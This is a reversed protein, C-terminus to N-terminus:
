KTKTKADKPQVYGEPMGDDNWRGANDPRCARVAMCAVLVTSTIPALYWYYMDYGLFVKGILRNLFSCGVCVAAAGLAMQDLPGFSASASASAGVAADAYAYATAQTVILKAMGMLFIFWPVLQVSIYWSMVTAVVPRPIPRNVVPLKKGMRGRVSKLQGKWCEWFDNYWYMSAQKFACQCRFKIKKEVALAALAHSEAVLHGIERHGGLEDYTERTFLNCQGFAYVKGTNVKAPILGQAICTGPWNFMYEAFCSFTTKPLFSVWGVEAKTMSGIFDDIAGPYLTVDSDAFLLYDGKAVDAGQAVAWNKGKWYVKGREQGAVPIFRPDNREKKIRQLEAWTNDKSRDDVVIFEVNPSDTSNLASEAIQGIGDGENYAPFIVSVVKDGQLGKGKEVKPTHPAFAVPLFGIVKVIINFLALGIMFYAFRQTPAPVYEDLIFRMLLAHTIVLGFAVNIRIPPRTKAPQGDVDGSSAM